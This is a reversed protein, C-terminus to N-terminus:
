DPFNYHHDFIDNMEKYADKAIKKPNDAGKAIERLANEAIELRQLDCDERTM